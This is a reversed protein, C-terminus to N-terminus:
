GNQGDTSRQPMISMPTMFEEAESVLREMSCSPGHYGRVKTITSGLHSHVGELKLCDSGKIEDLFWQLVMLPEFIITCAQACEM